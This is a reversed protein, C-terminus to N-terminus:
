MIRGNKDYEWENNDSEEIFYERSTCHKFDETCAKGWSALCEGMLDHFTTKEDPKDLFDYVPRLIEIDMYYGTLVLETSLIVKSHRKKYTFKGDVWEGKTSYYRGKFLLHSYNNWIYKLLRLGSMESLEEADYDFDWSVSSHHEDYEWNNINIPFIKEFERLTDRNEENWHYDSRGLWNHHAECLAGESLESAKFVQISIERM